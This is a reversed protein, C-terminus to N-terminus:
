GVPMMLPQTTWVFQQSPLTFASAGTRPDNVQILLDAQQSFDPVWHFGGGLTWGEPVLLSAGEINNVEPDHIAVRNFTMAQQSDM